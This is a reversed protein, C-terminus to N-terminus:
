NSDHTSTSRQGNIELIWDNFSEFRISWSV